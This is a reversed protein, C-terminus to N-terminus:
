LETSAYQPLAFLNGLEAHNLNEQRKGIDRCLGYLRRGECIYQALDIKGGHAVTTSIEEAIQGIDKLKMLIIKVFRERFIDLVGNEEAGLQEAYRQIDKTPSKSVHLDLRSGSKHFFMHPQEIWQGIASTLIEPVIIDQKKPNHDSRRSCACLGIKTKSESPLSSWLARCKETIEESIEPSSQSINAQIEELAGVVVSESAGM